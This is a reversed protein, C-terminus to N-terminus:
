YLECRTRHLNATIRFAKTEEEQKIIKWSKDKLQCAQGQKSREHPVPKVLKHSRALRRDM